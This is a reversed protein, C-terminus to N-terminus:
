VVVEVAAPNGLPATPSATLRNQDLWVLEEGPELRRETGGMRQLPLDIARFGM